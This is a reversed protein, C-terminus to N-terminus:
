KSLAGNEMIESFGYGSGFISTIVDDFAEALATLLRDTSKDEEVPIQGNNSVRYIADDIRELAANAASPECITDNLLDLCEKYAAKIEEMDADSVAVKKNEDGLLITCGDAYNSIIKEADGLRWRTINRTNRNGNFQPFENSFDATSKIEGNILRGILSIVVDNRGVEHYQGYFFWTNQPFLCTSADVSGDPSIIANPAFAIEDPLYTGAVAYTAGLTTSDIDIVGDSNTVDSSRMAGFFNYDQEAYSIGYGAVSHVLRGDAAFATLNDNLNVRATQFADLKDALVAYEEDEWIYNYKAKISEYRDTPIMAWFQPCNLLLTEAIGDIAGTLLSYVVEKPFIKLAVNILYGLAPSDANAEMVMPLFENFFFTEYEPHAPDNIKFERAFFDGMIDTGQLCSVVNVIRNVDPYGTGKNLEMYATLITGGLSITVINVKDVGEKEKVFQIYEDLGEASEMPDGILPFAYLYLDNEDLIAESAVDGTTVDIRDETLSKMPIMRYFYDRDDQSMEGVSTKYSVTQLNEIPEGNKDSAQTSFIEKVTKTVAKQFLKDNDHQRVLATTLPAALNNVIAPVLKDSDIILLGGSLEEGSSNYVPNGKEDAVYSVSQSIGPIIVTPYIKSDPTGNTIAKSSGSFFDPTNKMLAIAEEISDANLIESAVANLNFISTIGIVSVSLTLVVALAIAIIRKSTKKM